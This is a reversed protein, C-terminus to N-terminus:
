TSKSRPMDPGPHVAIWQGREFDVYTLRPAVRYATDCNECTVGQLTENLIAARLDPRRDANISAFLEMACPQGCSPCEAAVPTILSM